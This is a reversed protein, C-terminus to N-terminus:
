APEGLHEYLVAAIDAIAAPAKEQAQYRLGKFYVVMVLPAGSPTYVIAADNSTGSVGGTKNAVFLGPPLGAPIKERWEQRSLIEIMLRCSPASACRSETIMALLGAMDGPSGRNDLAQDIAFADDYGRSEDRGWREDYLHQFGAGNLRENEELVRQFADEHEDRAEFSRWKAVTEAGSLGRWDSGAGCEMLFYERNPMFCDITALDLERMTENVTGLGVLRWLMDTATNDSLTIMLYLLDRVTPQLGEQCHILTSGPSKDTEALTLRDDLRLGGVDVRRMVEVMVPIKFCSAMPFVDDANVCVSAQSALNRAAVGVTGGLASAIAAIRDHARALSAM